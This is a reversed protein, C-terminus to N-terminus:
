PFLSEFGNIECTSFALDFEASITEKGANEKEQGDKEKNAYEKVIRYRGTELDWYSNEIYVRYSYEDGSM